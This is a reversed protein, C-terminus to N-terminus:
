AARRYETATDAVARLVLRAVLRAAPTPRSARALMRALARETEHRYRESRTLKTHRKM